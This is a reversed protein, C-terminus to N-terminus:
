LYGSYHVSVSKGNSALEGNGEEVVFYQLGSSHEIMKKEEFDFPIIEKKKEFNILEIDFILTSNAPISGIARAGYALESKIKLTAKAGKSLLLFGEDWGAIVQGVGVTFEFPTGRDYSSDFKTGDLLTGKYHVIVKDGIEPKEGNGSELIQYELGSETVMFEGKDNQAFVSLMLVSVLITLLIKKM